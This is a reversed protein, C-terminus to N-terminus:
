KVGTTLAGGNEVWRTLQDRSYYRRRGIATFPVTGGKAMLRLCKDSVGLYKAAEAATMLHTNIM